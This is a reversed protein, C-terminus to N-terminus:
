SKESIGGEDIVLKVKWAIRRRLIRGLNAKFMLKRFKLLNGLFDPSNGRLWLESMRKEFKAHLM